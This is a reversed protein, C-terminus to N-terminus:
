SWLWEEEAPDLQLVARVTADKQYLEPFRKFANHITQAVVHVYAVQDPLVTIPSPLVRITDPQGERLYILHRPFAEDRILQMLKLIDPEAIQFFAERVRSALSSRSLGLEEAPTLM